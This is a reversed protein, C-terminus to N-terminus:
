KSSKSYLASNLIDHTIEQSRPNKKKKLLTRLVSKINFYSLKILGSLIRDVDMFMLFAWSSRNFPGRSDAAYPIDAQPCSFGVSFHVEIKM